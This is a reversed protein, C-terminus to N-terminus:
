TVHIISYYSVKQIRDIEQRLFINMSGLHGMIKLREKVAFPDYPVPVKLLMENVLRAVTAERTEGGGGASEKHVVVSNHSM